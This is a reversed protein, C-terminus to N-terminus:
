KKSGGLANLYTKTRLRHRLLWVAYGGIAIAGIGYAALLYPLPDTAPGYM